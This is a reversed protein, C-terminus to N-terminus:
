QQYLVAQLRHCPEKGHHYDGHLRDTCPQQCHYLQKFGHCHCSGGRHDPDLQHDGEEPQLAGGGPEKKKRSRKRGEEEVPM